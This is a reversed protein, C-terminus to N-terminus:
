KEIRDHIAVAGYFHIGTLNEVLEGFRSDGTAYNGGHMGWGAARRMTGDSDIDVPIISAIRDLDGFQRIELAAAADDTPEFVQCDLPVPVIGRSSGRATNGTVGVLTLTNFRSSIGHNTADSYRPHRLVDLSLGFRAPVTTRLQDQIQSFTRM